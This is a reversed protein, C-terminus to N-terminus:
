KILHFKEQRGGVYYVTDDTFLVETELGLTISRNWEAIDCTCNLELSYMTDNYMPYDGQIPVGQQMDWLGITPGAAHGHYGIPHTYLCPQLGEAIAQKRAAKLIENGSIGEKFHSIVIDQFRNVQALADKLYQPADTEGQKLVYANEQTDTCLNLYKLGVDCHLIDGPMIVTEDETTMDKRIISVEFDFWPTMGMDIVSQLMHYKVDHNTTIGPHVVRSSFAENIMAHAYEMIGNYAVMEKETRTELWGICVDEASVVREIYEDDMAEMIDRYLTFSLGDGFSYEDSFNLGITEPDCERIIHGLCEFQTEGESGEECWISGKQNTWVSEYYDDLGVGPRTLAMRRVKGEQYHFVLITTRRATMMACPVLTTLVPDENYEKCAVIWMDIGSREMVKPLVTEFREKLWENRVKEQQRYPLIKKKLEDLSVSQQLLFDEKSIIMCMDEM